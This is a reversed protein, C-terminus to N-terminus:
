PEKKEKAWETIMFNILLITSNIKIIEYVTYRLETLLFMLTYIKVVFFQYCNCVCVCVCVCVYIYTYIHIYIHIHTYIYIYIYIYVCVCMYIYVYM